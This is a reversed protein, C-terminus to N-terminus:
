KTGVWWMRINPFGNYLTLRGRIDFCPGIIRRNDKCLEKAWASVDGCVTRPFILAILLKAKM